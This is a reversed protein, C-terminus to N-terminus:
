RTSLIHDKRNQVLNSTPTGKRIHETARLVLYGEEFNRKKMLKDSAKSLRKQYVSLNKKERDRREKLAELELMQLTDNDSETDLALRAFPVLIEVLLVVEIGYVLSFPIAKTPGHKSTKYAWLAVPLADHWMKPEEHVM